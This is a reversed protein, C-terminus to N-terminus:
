EVIIEPDPTPTEEESIDPEPTPTEEGSGDFEDGPDVPDGPQEADIGLWGMFKALVKLLGPPVQKKSGEAVKTEAKDINAQIRDLANAIGNREQGATESAEDSEQARGRERAMATESAAQSGPVRGDKMRGLGKGPVASVDPAEVSPESQVSAAAESVTAKKAQGPATARGNGNGKGNGGPAGWALAPVALMAVLAISIAIRFSSRRM